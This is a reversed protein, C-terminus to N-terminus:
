SISYEPKWFQYWKRKKIPKCESFPNNGFSVKNLYKSTLMNLFVEHYKKPIKVFDATIDVELTIPGSDTFVIFSENLKVITSTRVNLYDPGLNIQHHDSMKPTEPTM